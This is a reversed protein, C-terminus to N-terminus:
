PGSPARRPFFRGRRAASATAGSLLVVVATALALTLGRWLAAGPPQGHDIWRLAFAATTAYSFGAAWFPVGFPARAYYPILVVQLLGMLVTVATLVLLYVDFRGVVVLYTNGALAPAALEIVVVPRLALPLPTRMLRLSTVVGLVLWSAVGVALLAQGLGVWGLGVVCQATLLAGGATPLYFGPHYGRLPLRTVLWAVVVALGGALTLFGFCAILVRALLDARGLLATALLMPTIAVVPVFPGLAPDSLEAPLRTERRVLQALWPVALAVLLAASVIALGDAVPTAGYEGSLRWAGSLGAFGFPIGFM